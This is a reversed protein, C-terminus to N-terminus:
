IVFLDAVTLTTGATVTAFLVQAGAGSGDADFYLKGAAQNYVIRDTADHAATGIFFRSAALAGVPGIGAFAADDLQIRDDAARFDSIIDANTSANPASTFRFTDLGTGGTLRDNGTGGILTDNGSGGSLVDNGSSGSLINAAANGIITNALTNGTGSIASSGTLTLRELNAGLTWTVASNVTDIESAVNSTETVKDLAANVFYIDNGTGGVMNDNGLGGDLRDNGSGGSLTNAGSNGTMVNALSNGAGNIATSGTLVLNEINAGLTWNVSSRVTDIDTALNSTEITKDGIANVVYTDSGDEGYLTDNGLGGDLWDNGAWGWLTNAVSSGVLTDNFNWGHVSEISILTDTGGNGDSATGAGLNVSVGTVTQAYWAVDVGAGGNITDNGAGGELNFDDGGGGNIIDNGARGKIQDGYGSGTFTDNYRTGEIAISEIGRLTDTGGLGDALLLDGVVGPALAAASFTVATVGPPLTGPEDFRYSALDSTGAGGDILDNGADGRLNDNGAGGLLQDNGLNGRLIDDGSGGNLMDAGDGVVSVGSSDLAGYLIDDGDGGQLMDAGRRGTLTDNGAGGELTNDGSHGALADGGAGGIVNEIASLTDNGAGGSAAGAQLDVQVALAAAAYSATDIGTGGELADNGLGGILLDNGFDGRLLDNGAGGDLTDDDTFVSSLNLADAAGGLHGNLLDAGAGGYITDDGYYGSLHQYGAAGTILDNGAGGRISFVGTFDVRGFGGDTQGYLASGASANTFTVEVSPKAGVLTEVLISQFSVRTAGNGTVTDNGAQAQFENYANSALVEGNFSGVIVDGSNVSASPANSLTFGTADYVDDQHTGRISEIGRLTDNGTILPDGSVTGAALHVVIGETQNGTGYEARDVGTRGDIFDNGGNGRFAEFSADGSVTTASGITNVHGGGLLTDSYNGGRANNVGSAAIDGPNFATSNPDDVFATVIHDVTGPATLLSLDITISGGVGGYNLITQGNGIITDDGGQANFINYAEGYSNRNVSDGGYGTADFTDAFNTGTVIEIERLTDTGVDAGGSVTGAALDVVIGNAAYGYAAADNGGRGDILDNGGYGRFEEYDWTARGHFTDNGAGGRVSDVGVLTDTGLLVNSADRKEVSGAAMDVVFHVAAADGFGYSLYTNQYDVTDFDMFGYRWYSSSHAYGGYIVDNGASGTIYDGGLGAYFNDNGATGDTLNDNGTGGYFNAM